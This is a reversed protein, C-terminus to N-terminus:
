TVVAVSTPQDSVADAPVGVPTVAVAAVQALM